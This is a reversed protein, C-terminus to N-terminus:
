NPQRRPGRSRPRPRRVANELEALRQFLWRRAERIRAIHRYDRAYIEALEEEITTM